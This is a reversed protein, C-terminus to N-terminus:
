QIRDGFRQRLALQAKAKLIRVHRHSRVGADALEQVLPHFQDGASTQNLTQPRDLFRILHLLDLRGSGEGVSRELLQQSLPQDSAGLWGNTYEYAKRAPAGNVDLFSVQKTQQNAITTREKVSVRVTNGRHSVAVVETEFRVRDGLAVAMATALRDNGGEVRYMPGPAPSDSASFQDVLVLLSLEEPDALFFGRLGTATARLESDAGIQDLWAAVSRRAIANAIPTDWRQEALRYPRM